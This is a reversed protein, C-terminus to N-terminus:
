IYNLGPKCNTFQGQRYISKRLSQVVQTRLELQMSTVTDRIEDTVAKIGECATLTEKGLKVGEAALQAGQKTM